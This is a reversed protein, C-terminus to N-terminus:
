RIFRARHVTRPGILELVHEGPPLEHLDLPRSAEAVGQALLQGTLSIVRFSWRDGPAGGRVHVLGSESPVPYLMLGERTVEDSAIGTSLCLPAAAVTLPDFSPTFAVSTILPVSSSHVLPNATAVVTLVGLSDAEGCPPPLATLDILEVSSRDPASAGCRVLHDDDVAVATFAALAPDPAVQWLVDGNATMRLLVSNDYPVSALLIVEILVDGGPLPTLMVEGFDRVAHDLLRCWLVAGQPDLMVLSMEGATPNFLTEIALLINGSPLVAAEYTRNNNSGDIILSESWLVTGDAALRSIVSNTSSSGFFLVLDDAIGPALGAYLAGGNAQPFLRGQPGAGDPGTRVVAFTSPAMSYALVALDGSSTRVADLPGLDLTDVQHYVADLPTGSGSIRIFAPCTRGLVNDWQGCLVLDGTSTEFPAARLALPDTSRLAWLVTGDSSLRLVPPQASGLRGPSVLLDGNGATRIDSFGLGTPAAYKLTFPAQAHAAWLSLVTGLILPVRFLNPRPRM